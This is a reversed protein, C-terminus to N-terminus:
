RTTVAPRAARGIFFSTFLLFMGGLTELTEEINSAGPIRWGRGMFPRLVHEILKRDLAQSLFYTVLCMTFLSAATRDLWLGTMASRKKVAVAVLVAFVLFVLESSAHGVIRCERGLFNLAAFFLWLYSFDRTLRWGQAAVLVAAALVAPHLLEMRSKLVSYDRFGCFDIETLWYVTAAVVCPLVLLPWQFISFFWKVFNKM